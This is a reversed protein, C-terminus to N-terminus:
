SVQEAPAGAAVRATNWNATFERGGGGGGGITSGSGGVGDLVAGSAAAAVRVEHM